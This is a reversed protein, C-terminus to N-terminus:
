GRDRDATARPELREAIADVLTAPDGVADVVFGPEDPELPELIELQSALLSAPMYRHKRVTTRRELEDAPARLQVFVVSPHGDRLTDRYPRKLASCAVVGDQQAREREGIWAAIARLWPGRDTDSLPTGAAMKAVNAPSHFDDGEAWAAGLRAALLEGVTTKGVGSAGCVVVTTV